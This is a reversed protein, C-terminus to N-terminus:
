EEHYQIEQRIILLLDEKKVAHRELHSFNTELRTLADIVKDLRIEVSDQRKFVLEFIYKAVFGLAALAITSLTYKIYQIDTFAINYDGAVPIIVPGSKSAFVHLCFLLLLFAILIFYFNIATTKKMQILFYSCKGSVEKMQWKENM